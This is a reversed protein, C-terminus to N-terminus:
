RVVRKNSEISYATARITTAVELISEVLKTEMNIRLWFSSDLLLSLPKDSVTRIYYTVHLNRDTPPPIKKM